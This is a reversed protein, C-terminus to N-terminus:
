SQRCNILLSAEICARLPAFEHFEGSLKYETPEERRGKISLSSSARSNAYAGRLSDKDSGNTSPPRLNEDQAVSAGNPLPKRGFPNRFPPM